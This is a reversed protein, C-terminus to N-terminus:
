RKQKERSEEVCAQCICALGRRDDPILNFIEESFTTSFCWCTGQPMGKLNGCRNDKGCIPCLAPDVASPKADKRMRENRREVKNAEETDSM